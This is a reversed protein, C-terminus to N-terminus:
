SRLILLQYLSRIRASKNTSVIHSNRLDELAQLLKIFKPWPLEFSRLKHSTSHMILQLYTKLDRRLNQRLSSKISNKGCLEVSLIAVINERTLPQITYNLRAENESKVCSIIKWEMCHIGIEYL